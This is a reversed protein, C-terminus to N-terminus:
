GDTESTEPAVPDGPPDFLRAAYEWMSVPEAVTSVAQALTVGLEAQPTGVIGVLVAALHAHWTVMQRAVDPLRRPDDRAIDDLAAAFSAAQALLSRLQTRHDGVTPNAPNPMTREETTQAAQVPPEHDHQDPETTAPMMRIMGPRDPQARGSAPHRRRAAARDAQVRRVRRRWEEGSSV